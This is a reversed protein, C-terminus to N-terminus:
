GPGPTVRPHDTVKQALHILLLAVPALPNTQLCQGGKFKHAGAEAPLLVLAPEGTALAHCTLSIGRNTYISNSDFFSLM